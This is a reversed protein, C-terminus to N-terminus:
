RARRGVSLTLGLPRDIRRHADGLESDPVRTSAERENSVPNLLLNPAVQHSGTLTSAEARLRPTPTLQVIGESSKIIVVDSILPGRRFRRRRSLSEYGKGRLTCTLTARSIRRSRKIRRPSSAHGPSGSQPRRRFGHIRWRARGHARWDEVRGRDLRMARTRGRFPGPELQIAAARPYGGHFRGPRPDFRIVRQLSEAEPYEM